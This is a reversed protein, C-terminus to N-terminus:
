ETSRESEAPAPGHLVCDPDELQDYNGFEDPGASGCICVPDLPSVPRSSRPTGSEVPGMPQRGPWEVRTGYLDGRVAIM